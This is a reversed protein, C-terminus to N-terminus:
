EWPYKMLYYDVMKVTADKMQDIIQQYLNFFRMVYRGYEEDAEKPMDFVKLGNNWRVLHTVNQATLSDYIPVAPCHFHMYKSVFSHPSKGQNTIKKIINSLSGHIEVIKALNEKNLPEKIGKLQDLLTDIDPGKEQFHKALKRFSSGPDGDSPILRAIGSDYSKGIINIKVNIHSLIRHGPYKIPLQFLVEDEYKWNEEYDEAAKKVHLINFAVQNSRM